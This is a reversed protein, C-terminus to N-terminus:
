EEEGLKILDSVKMDLAAAIREMTDMKPSSGNLIKYINSKSCSLAVSLGEVTMERKAMAVSLARKLNM